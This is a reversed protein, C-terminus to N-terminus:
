EEEKPARNDMLRFGLRLLEAVCTDCHGPNVEAVRPGASRTLQWWHFTCHGRVTVSGEVYYGDTSRPTM